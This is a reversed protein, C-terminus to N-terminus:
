LKDILRDFICQTKNILKTINSRLAQQLGHKFAMLEFIYINPLYDEDVCLYASARIRM